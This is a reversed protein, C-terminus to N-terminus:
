RLRGGAGGTLSGREHEVSRTAVAAVPGGPGFPPAAAPRLGARAPAPVWAPAEVLRRATDARGAAPPAAPLETHAIRVLAAVVHAAGAAVAVAVLARRDASALHLEGFRHLAFGDDLAWCLLAAVAAGAATTVTAVAAAAAAGLVLGVTTVAPTGFLWAVCQAATGAALGVVGGLAPPVPPRRPPALNRSSLV